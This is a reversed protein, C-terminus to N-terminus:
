PFIILIIKMKQFRKARNEYLLIYVILSLHVVLFIHLNKSVNECDSIVPVYVFGDEKHLLCANSGENVRNEDRVAFGNVTLKETETYNLIFDTKLTGTRNLYYGNVAYMLLVVLFSGILAVAIKQDKSLQKIKQM